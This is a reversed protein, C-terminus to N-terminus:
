GALIVSINERNNECLTLLENVIPRGKFDGIPDLDYAEDIFLVGDMAKSVSKKFEDTGGDKAGQATLEVIVNKERVGSDCLIAAFLRAVSLHPFPTFYFCLVHTVHMSSPFGCRAALLLSTGSTKGSGPNGAFIYNAAMINKTRAEPDMKRLQLASNWIRLAEEKVKRLGTLALLEEMSDSRTEVPYREQLGRWRDWLLEPWGPGADPKESSDGCVLQLESELLIHKQSPFLALFTELIKEASTPEGLRAAVILSWPHIRTSNSKRSLTVFHQLNEKAREPDHDIMEAALLLHLLASEKEDVQSLLKALLQLAKFPSANSNAFQMKEMLDLEVNQDLVGASCIGGSWDLDVQFGELVTGFLARNVREDQEHQLSAADSDDDDDDDNNEGDRKSDYLAFRTVIDHPPLKYSISSPNLSPLTGFNKSASAALGFLQEKTVSIRVLAVMPYPDWVVLNTFGRETYLLSDYSDNLLTHLMAGRKKKPPLSKSCNVKTRALSAFGFLLTVEGKNVTEALKLLNAETLVKCIIGHMSAANKVFLKPDFTSSKENNKLHRFCPIRQLAFLPRDWDPFNEVFGQYQQLLRREKIAFHKDESLLEMSGAPLCEFMSAMRLVDIPRPEQIATQLADFSCRPCEQPTGDVCQKISFTHQGSSCTWPVLQGCAAIGNFSCNVQLIQHCVDFNWCKEPRTDTCTLQMRGAEYKQFEACTAEVVHDCALRVSVPHTCNLSDMSIRSSIFEACTVDKFHGCGLVVTTRDRCQRFAAVVEDRMQAVDRLSDANQQIKRENCLVSFTETSWIEKQFESAQNCVVDCVHGCMPSKLKVTKTCSQLPKRVESCVIAHTHGCKRVLPVKENCQPLPIPIAPYSPLSGEVYEQVSDPVTANKLVKIDSCAVTCHHGCAPHRTKVQTRCPPLSLVRSFAESCSLELNHGCERVITAKKNCTYDRPGYSQGEYIRGIESCNEGTWQLLSRAVGCLLKHKHGCRPLVESVKERCDFIKSGSLIQDIEWCKMRKKHGCPAEYDGEQECRVSSPTETYCKMEACTVTRTHGCSLFTYLNPSQLNCVPSSRKGQTIELEEWCPLREIHGCPLSLEVQKPCRYFSLVSQYDTQSPLKSSHLFAQHCSITGGHRQCPSDLSVACNKNHNSKPWHCRLSCPHGCSLPAQCLETCFGARLSDASSATMTVHRHVPCCLPIAPGYRQGTYLDSTKVSTSSCDNNGPAELLELTRNWHKPVSSQNGLFGGNALIYLGLRARSLLVVMRNKLKVFGTRSSEDVVISCIIVDEEDGQFRDVTSVRCVDEEQPDRSLLKSSSYKSDKLLKDRILMLQGKYPTLIAISSRPVGCAVCYAALAAAM